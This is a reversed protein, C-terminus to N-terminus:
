LTQGKFGKATLDLFKLALGPVVLNSCRESAEKMPLRRTNGAFTLNSQFPIALNLCELKNPRTKQMSSFINQLTSVQIIQSAQALVDPPRATIGVAEPGLVASM